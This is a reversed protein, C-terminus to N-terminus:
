RCSAPCPWCGSASLCDEGLDLLLEAHRRRHEGGEPTQLGVEAGEVAVARRQRRQRREGVIAPPGIEEAPLQQRRDLDDVAAIKGDGFHASRPRTLEALKLEDGLAVEVEADVEVAVPADIQQVRRGVRESRRSVIDLAEAPLAALRPQLLHADRLRQRPILRVERDLQRQRLPRCPAHRKGVALRQRRIAGICREMQRHAPVPRREEGIRVEVDIELPVVREDIRRGGGIERRPQGAGARNPASRADIEEADGLHLFHLLQEGGRAVVDALGVADDAADVRAATLAICIM